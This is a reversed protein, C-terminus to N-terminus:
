GVSLDGAAMYGFLLENVVGRQVDDTGPVGTLQHPRVEITQGLYAAFQILLYQREVHLLRFNLLRRELEVKSSPPMERGEPPPPPAPEHVRMLPVDIIEDADGPGIVLPPPLPFIERHINDGDPMFPELGPSAWTVGVRVPQVFVVPPNTFPTIFSIRVIGSNVNGTDQLASSTNFSGPLVTGTGLEEGKMQITAYAKVGVM